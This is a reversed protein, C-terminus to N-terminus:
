GVTVEEKPLWVSAEQKPSALTLLVTLPGVRGFLMCIMVIIKGIADLEATAGVSLGVTGLASVTEFLLSAAGVQQTVLLSIFVVGGVFVSATMVAISRYVSTHSIHRGLINVRPFGRFVGFTAMFLLVVTTVKIGGATGGPSGGIFMLIIMLTTTAPHLAAIDLSNFGATRATVSQFWSNLLKHAFPMGTLTNAWEFALFVLMGAILLLGSAWVIVKVQVPLHRKRILDPLAVVVAPSLGGLVILTAVTTLIGFNQNYPMLSATQLAFGANCFASISTFIGRWLATSLDDGAQAFFFALLAAGIVESAFTVKLVTKIASVVEGRRERGFVELMAREHKVSFRRRFLAFAATYFTMIGIAGVQILVIISFQGFFSFVTPTDLVTLGTVCVASVATFVADVYSIPVQVLSAAPLSLLISGLVSLGVFSLVLLRAPHELILEGLSGVVNEHRETALFLVSFPFLMWVTALLSKSIHFSVASVLLVALSFALWSFNAMQTRKESFAWRVALFFSFGVSLMVALWIKEAYVHRVGMIAASFWTVIALWACLRLSALPSTRKKSDLLVLSEISGSGFLIRLLVASAIMWLLAITPSDVIRSSLVALLFATGITGIARSYKPLRELLFGSFSIVLCALASLWFRNAQGPVLDVTAFVLILPGLGILSGSLGEAKQLATM